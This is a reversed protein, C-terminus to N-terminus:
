QFLKYTLKFINIINIYFKNKTNLSDLLKKKVKNNSNLMKIGQQNRKYSQFMNQFKLIHLKQKNSDKKTRLLYFLKKVPMKIESYINNFRSYINQIMLLKKLNLLKGNM